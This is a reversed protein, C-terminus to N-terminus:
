EEATPDWGTVYNEDWSSMTQMDEACLPEADCAALNQALRGEDESKPLLVLGRQLGWRLMVGAASCAHKSAIAALRPEQLMSGKCLPSFAQVVISNARCYAVIDDRQLFPSLEIQNVAPPVTCSTLLAELHHVGYNSVGIAKTLGAALVEEM